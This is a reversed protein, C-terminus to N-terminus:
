LLQRTEPLVYCLVWHLAPHPRRIPSGAARTGTNRRSLEGGSYSDTTNFQIMLLDHTSFIACRSSSISAPHSPDSFRNQLLNAVGNVCTDNLLQSPNSM